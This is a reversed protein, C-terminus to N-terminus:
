DGAAATAAREMRIGGRSSGGQIRDVDIILAAGNKMGPDHNQEVEPSLDFVRERVAADIDVHGRGQIILTTRLKSDRYLLSLSPNKAM